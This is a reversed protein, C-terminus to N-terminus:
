TAGCLPSVQDVLHLYTPDFDGARKLGEWDLVSLTREKLTILGAARLDQLVRNTHVTSIGLADGFEGQTMPLDCSLDDALGVVKLRVLLECLLHAMANYADRRANVIWERFVSADILTQRWFAGTLRPHRECLAHIVEHQVFAVTCPTITGVSFDLVTLHVSQLDPVDGPVHFNLIERDGAGTIKYSCAFGDQVFVCRSAREGARVIDEDAGFRAVQIPLAHFAAREDRSLAFISELKRVLPAAGSSETM